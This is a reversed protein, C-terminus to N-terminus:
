DTDGVGHYKGGTPKGGHIENVYSEFKTENFLTQPRLYKKMEKIKKPNLWEKCKLDIVAILDEVLYGAMLRGKVFKSTSESDARFHKGSMENLHSIVRVIDKSYEKKGEEKKGKKGNKNITASSQKRTSPESDYGSRYEYNSPDQYFEYNLITVRVGRTTRKTTIMEKDRLWRMAYDVQSKKYRVKRYGIFWSLDEIIDRYTRVCQGRKIIKGNGKRDSHNAEKILWDWIERIYPPAHAIESEQIKRAKIYYGGPIKAKGM